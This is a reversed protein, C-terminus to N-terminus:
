ATRVPTAGLLEFRRTLAPGLGDGSLPVGVTLPGALLVTGESNQINSVLDGTALPDDHAVKLTPTSVITIGTEDRVARNSVRYKCAVATVPTGSSATENGHADEAGATVPTRTYSHVLLVSLADRVSTAEATTLLGAM